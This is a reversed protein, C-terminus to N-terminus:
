LSVAYQMGINRNGTSKSFHVSLLGINISMIKNNKGSVLQGDREDGMAAQRKYLIGVIVLGNIPRELPVTANYETLDDHQSSIPM